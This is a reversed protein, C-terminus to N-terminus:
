EETDPSDSLDSSDAEKESFSSSYKDLGVLNFAEYFSNIREKILKDVDPNRGFTGNNTDLDRELSRLKHKIDISNIACANNKVSDIMDHKTTLLQKEIDSREIQLQESTKEPNLEQTLTKIQNTLSLIKKKNQEIKIKNNKEIADVNQLQSNLQEIQVLINHRIEEEKKSVTLVINDLYDKMMGLENEFSILDSETPIFDYPFQIGHHKAKQAFFKANEVMECCTIINWSMSFSDTMGFLMSGKIKDTCIKMHERLRDGIVFIKLLLLYQQKDSFISAFMVAGERLKEIDDDSAHLFANHTESEYLEILFKIISNNLYCKIDDNIEVIKYNKLRLDLYKKGSDGLEEFSDRLCFNKIEDWSEEGVWCLEKKCHTEYSGDDFKYSEPNDIENFFIYPM